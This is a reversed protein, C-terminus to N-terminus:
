RTGVLWPSTSRRIAPPKSPCQATQVFAATSISSSILAARASSWEIPKGIGPGIQMCWATDINLGIRPGGIKLLHDIVAPQGGFMYGGHCHLGIRIDFEDALAATAPVADQFTDVTFHASIYGAGAKRAFEFWQREVSRGTFNQVGISIIDVGANRYSEIVEDHKDPDDFDAHVGCVEITDLGIDKVKQAVVDNDKFHRFCFSQVGFERPSAM